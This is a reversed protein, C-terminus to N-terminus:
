TERYPRGNTARFLNRIRRFGRCFRLWEQPVPFGDGVFTSFRQM